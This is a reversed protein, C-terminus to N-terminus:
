LPLPTPEQAKKLDAHRQMHCSRCLPEVDWWRSYDEHHYHEAQSECKACKFLTAKPWTNTNQRKSVLSQAQEKVSYDEFKRLPQPPNFNALASPMIRITKQKSTSISLDLFDRREKWKATKPSVQAEDVLRQVHRRSVGLADAAQQITLLTEM